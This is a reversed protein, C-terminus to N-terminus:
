KDMWKQVEKLEKKYWVRAHRDYLVSSEVCAQGERAQWRKTLLSKELLGKVGSWLCGGRRVRNRLAARDGVWSGLSRMDECEEKGLEVSEEKDENNREDWDGMVETTVRVCEEM